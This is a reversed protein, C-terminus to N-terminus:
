EQGKIGKSAFAQTMEPLAKAMDKLEFRGLKGGTAARNFAEKIAADGKIGLTESFSYVMGALDKMDANTATSVKGLLASYQGAKNADMGAAVLTNVGDIIASTSQNTNLAAQRIQAGLTIEQKKSLNGTIAIDRLDTEFNAAQKISAIVPAGIAISMAASEKLNGLSEQRATKLAVGRALSATLQEQKRRVSDISRGVQEYQSSLRSLSRGGLKQGYREMAKGMGDYKTKLKEGTVSRADITRKANGCDAVCSGQLVAGLAIGVLLEKAM